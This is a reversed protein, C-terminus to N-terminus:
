RKNWDHLDLIELFKFCLIGDAVFVNSRSFPRLRSFLLKMFKITSRSKRNFHNMPPKLILLTSMNRFTKMVGFISVHFLHGGSPHRFWLVKMTHDIIPADNNSQNFFWYCSVHECIVQLLGKAWFLTDVWDEYPMYNFYISNFKWKNSM